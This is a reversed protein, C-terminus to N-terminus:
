QYIRLIHMIVSKGKKEIVRAVALLVVHEYWKERYDNILNCIWKIKQMM